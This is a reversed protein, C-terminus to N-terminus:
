GLYIIENLSTEAEAKEEGDVAHGLYLDVGSLHGRERGDLVACLEHLAASLRAEEAGAALRQDEALFVAPPTTRFPLLYSSIHM